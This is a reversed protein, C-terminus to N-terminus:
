TALLRLGLMNATLYVAGSIIIGILIFISKTKKFWLFILYLVFAVTLIDIIDMFSIDSLPNIM